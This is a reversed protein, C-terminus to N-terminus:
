VLSHADSLVNKLISIHEVAQVIDVAKAQLAQTLSETYSMYWEVVHLTLIFEFSLMAQTLSIANVLSDRLWKLPISTVDNFAKVISDFM